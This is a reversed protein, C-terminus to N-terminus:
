PECEHSATVGGCAKSTHAQAIRMAHPIRGDFMAVAHM